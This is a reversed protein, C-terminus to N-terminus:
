EVILAVGFQCGLVHDADYARSVWGVIAFVDGLSQHTLEFWIVSQNDTAQGIAYVDYRVLFGKGLSHTGDRDHWCPQVHDIGRVVYLGDFGDGFCSSGDDTFVADAGSRNLVVKGCAVFDDSAHGICGNHDLCRAFTTCQDGGVMGTFKVAFDKGDGARDMGGMVFPAVLEDFLMDSVKEGMDVIQGVHHVPRTLWCCGRCM